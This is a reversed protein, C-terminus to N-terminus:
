VSSETVSRVWSLYEPLGQQIPLAIIEPVEYSHNARIMSAVRDFAMSVTKAILLCEQEEVVAGDWRFVSRVGQVINVCAVVDEGVLLRSIKVAEDDSGVTVLVVIEGTSDDDRM